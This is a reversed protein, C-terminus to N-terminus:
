MRELQRTAKCSLSSFRFSAIPVSRMITGGRGPHSQSSHLQAGMSAGRLSGVALKRGGWTM